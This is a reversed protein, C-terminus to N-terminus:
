EQAHNVEGEGFAQVSLNNVEMGAGIAEGVIVNQLEFAAAYRSQNGLGTRLTAVGGHAPSTEVEKHLFHHKICWIMWGLSRHIHFCLYCKFTIGEGARLPTPAPSNPKSVDPYNSM